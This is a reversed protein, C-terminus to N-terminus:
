KRGGTGQEGQTKVFAEYSPPNQSLGFAREKECLTDYAQRSVSLDEFSIWALSQRAVEKEQGLYKEALTEAEEDTMSDGAQLYTREFREAEKEKGQVSEKNWVIGCCISDEWLERSTAFVRGIGASVAKAGFPEAVCYGDIQGSQLASPMEAPAMELIQVDETSLGNKQLLEQLLINHSSQENPIAFTKGRLQDGQTIDPRTIVVNGDRHGLAALELPIGQEKAKMALESLVSAGDARGTNLADMLEGWGGYRVLEVKVDGDFLEKTKFLPLSHTIPLYAIKLTVQEKGSDAHIQDYKYYLASGLLLVVTLFAAFAKIRKM